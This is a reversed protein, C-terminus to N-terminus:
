SAHSAGSMARKARESFDTMNEAVRGALDEAAGKGTIGNTRDTKM